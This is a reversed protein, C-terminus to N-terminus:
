NRPIPPVVTLDQPITQQAGAPMALAAALAASILKTRSLM